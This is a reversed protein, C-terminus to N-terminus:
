DLTIRKRGVGILINHEAAGVLRAFIATINCAM